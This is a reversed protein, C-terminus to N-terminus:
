DSRWSHREASQRRYRRRWHQIHNPLIRKPECIEFVYPSRHYLNAMIVAGSEEYSTDATFRRFRFPDICRSVILTYLSTTLPTQDVPISRDIEAWHSEGLSGLLEEIRRRRSLLYEEPSINWFTKYVHKANMFVRSPQDNVDGWPVTISVHVSRARTLDGVDFGPGVWEITVADDSFLATFAGATQYRHLYRGTLQISPHRLALVIAEPHHRQLDTLHQSILHPRLDRGRPLLTGTGMPVDDRCLLVQRGLRSIDLVPKRVIFGKTSVPLGIRHARLLGSLKGYHLYPTLAEIGRRNNLNFPTIDQGTSDIGKRRAM